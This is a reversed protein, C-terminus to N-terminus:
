HRSTELRFSLELGAELLDFDEASGTFFLEGTEEDLEFLGDDNGAVLRYRVPLGPPVKNSLTGLSIRTGYSALEATERVIDSEIAGTRPVNAASVVVTEDASREGDSARVRLRFEGAGDFVLEGSGKFFLEGTREDLEFLGSENGAILSYHLWGSGCKGVPVIGMSCRRANRDSDGKNTYQPSMRIASLERGMRGADLVAVSRGDDTCACYHLTFAHDSDDSMEIRALYAGPDLTMSIWEGKDAIARRSLVTGGADQLCLVAEADPLRLGFCVRRTATLSFRVPVTKRGTGFHPAVPARSAELGAIDGLDTAGHPSREVESEAPAASPRIRAISFEFSTAHSKHGITVVYHTGTRAATFTLWGNRDTQGDGNLAGVLLTGSTEYVAVCSPFRTARMGHRRTFRLTYSRGAVLEVTEVAGDGLPVSTCAIKLTHAVLWSLGPGDAVTEFM